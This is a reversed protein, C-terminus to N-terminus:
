KDGLAVKLLLDTLQPSVESMFRKTFSRTEVDKMYCDGPSSRPAVAVLPM